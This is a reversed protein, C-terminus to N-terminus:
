KVINTIIINIDNNYLKCLKLTINKSINIKTYKNIQNNKNLWINFRDILTILAKNKINVNLLKFLLIKWFLKNLNLNNINILIYYYDYYKNDDQNYANLLIKFQKIFNNINNELIEYLDKFNDSINFLGNIYNSNWNNICPVISNRIKGRQSWEPTSNKLYPINHEKAFKYINDKSINLLPRIFTINDQTSIINMGKLNDYHNSNAINTMINELCDDKNHGLIVIPNNNIFKYCNFRIKKTYEEYIERMDNLKCTNRNIESIERVFLQINYKKCFYIIFNTEDDSTIRNKYNISVCTIKINPYLKIINYLCVMSDVGGSLSVIINTYNNIIDFNGIKYKINKIIGESLPNFDLVNINFNTIYNNEILNEKFNAKKYTATLFKKNIIKRSWSKNLVYFINEKINTHRLPLMFFIFENENLNNIFLNNEKYIEITKLAKQLFYEIIHNANKNRFIHRPLQDCIIIKDFVNNSEKNLLNEYNIEIYKDINSNKSFWWSTNKFWENIFETM